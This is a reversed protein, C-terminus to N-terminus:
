FGKLVETVRQLGKCGRYARKVEELVRCGERFRQLMEYSGTVEQLRM